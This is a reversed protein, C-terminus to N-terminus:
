KDKEPIFDVIDDLSCGLVSCIKGLVGIRVDENKGLRAMANTSIKAERILDTKLMGRDKLIIWLKDYNVKM